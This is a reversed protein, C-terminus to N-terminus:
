GGPTLRLPDVGSNPTVTGATTAQAVGPLALMLVAVVLAFTVTLTCAKM